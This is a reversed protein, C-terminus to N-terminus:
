LKYCLMIAFIHFYSLNHNYFPLTTAILKFIWCIFYCFTRSHILSLSFMRGGSRWCASCTAHPTCPPTIQDQVPLEPVSTWQWTKSTRLLNWKFSSLAYRTSLSGPHPPTSLNSQWYNLIRQARQPPQNLHMAQGQRMVKFLSYRSAVLM